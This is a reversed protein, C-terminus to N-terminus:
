TCNGGEAVERHLQADGAVVGMYMQVNGGTPQLGEIAKCTEGGSLSQFATTVLM